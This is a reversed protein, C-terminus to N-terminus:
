EDAVPRTPEPAQGRILLSPQARLNETLERLNETSVRLNELTMELDFRGGDVLRRVRVLTANAEDLAARASKGLAPIDADDLQSRLRTTTDRLDRLVGVAEAQLVGVDLSEVVKNVNVLLTDLDEVLGAIDTDELRKAIREAATAITAMTSPASPVYLVEPEWAVEMVPFREPDLIDAQVFTVGTIGSQTLRLRLGRAINRELRERREQLSIPGERLDETTAEMRVVILDQLENGQAAEYVEDALRISSVTGIQVGRLKVASGVELGTVAEDFYSEFVVREAFLNGGAFVLAMVLVSLIGVFVLLGVRFYRAENM